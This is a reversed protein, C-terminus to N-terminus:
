KSVEEILKIDPGQGHIGSDVVKMGAFHIEFITKSNKIDDIEHYDVENYPGELKVWHTSTEIKLFMLTHNHSLTISKIELDLESLNM